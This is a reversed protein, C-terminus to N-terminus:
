QVRNRKARQIKLDINRKARQWKPKKRNQLENSGINTTCSSLLYDCEFFSKKVSPHTKKGFTFNIIQFFINQFSLHKSTNLFVLIQGRSSM